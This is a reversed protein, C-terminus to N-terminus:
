KAPQKGNEIARAYSLSRFAKLALLGAALEGVVVKIWFLTQPEVYKASEDTGLQTSLVTLMQIIVFLSGDILCSSM